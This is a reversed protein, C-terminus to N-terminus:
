TGSKKMLKKASSPFGVEEISVVEVEELLGEEGGSKRKRRAGDVVDKSTERKEEIAKSRAPLSEGMKVDDIPVELVEVTSEVDSSTCTEDEPDLVEVSLDVYKQKGAEVTITSVEEVEM